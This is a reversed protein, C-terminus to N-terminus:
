VETQTMTNILLPAINEYSATRGHSCFEADDSKYNLDNEIYVHFHTEQLFTILSKQM